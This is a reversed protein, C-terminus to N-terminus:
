KSYAEALRSMIESSIERHNFMAKRSLRMWGFQAPVLLRSAVWKRILPELTKVIRERYVSDMSAARFPNIGRRRSIQGALERSVAFQLPVESASALPKRASEVMERYTSLEDTQKFIFCGLRGGAHIGFPYCFNKRGSVENNANRERYDLAYHKISIRAAGASNMIDEGTKYMEFCTKEDPPVPLKGANIAKELPFGDHFHLRYHDLGSIPVEEIVTRQDEVWDHMTQGPLGYLLDIVVAAQNFSILRELTSIVQTRDALRGLSKRIKTNFTQVGISFRNVGNAVCAKMKDESFGTVRGEVTIECDNALKYHKRILSLLATFDKPEMDTPTGGGFYVANVPYKSLESASADRIERMLLRLYEEMGARDTKGFYFPCFLCRSRCFPIHVYMTRQGPGSTKLAQKWAEEPANVPKCQVGMINWKKGAAASTNEHKM